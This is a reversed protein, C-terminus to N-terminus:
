QGFEERIYDNFPDPEISIGFRELIERYEPDEIWEKMLLTYYTLAKSPPHLEECGCAIRPETLKPPPWPDSM